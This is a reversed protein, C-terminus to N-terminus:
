PLKIACIPETTSIGPTFTALVSSDSFAATSAFYTVNKKSNFKVAGEEPLPNKIILYISLLYNSSNISIVIFSFNKFLM